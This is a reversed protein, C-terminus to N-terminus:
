AGDGLELPTVGGDALAMALARTKGTKPAWKTTITTPPGAPTHVHVFGPIPEGTEKDYVVGGVAEARGALVNVFGQKVRSITEVETDHHVLAWDLLADPDELVFKDTAQPQVVVFTVVVDGDTDRVELSKTGLEDHLELLRRTAEARLVSETDGIAGKFAAAKALQALLDKINPQAPETAAEPTPTTTTDVSM